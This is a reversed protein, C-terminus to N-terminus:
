QILFLYFLHVKYDYMEGAGEDVSQKQKLLFKDAELKQIIIYIRRQLQPLTKMCSSAFPLHYLIFIKNLLTAKIPIM